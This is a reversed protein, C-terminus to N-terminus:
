GLYEEDDEYENDEDVLDGDALEVAVAALAVALEPDKTELLRNVMHPWLDELLNALAECHECHDQLEPEM